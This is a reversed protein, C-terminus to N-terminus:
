KFVKKASGVKLLNIREKKRGRKSKGTPKQNKFFQNRLAELIVSQINNHSFNEKEQELREHMNPSVRVTLPISEEKSSKKTSNNSTM